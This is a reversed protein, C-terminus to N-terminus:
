CAAQARRRARIPQGPLLFDSSMTMSIPMIVSFQSAKSELGDIKPRIMLIKLLIKLRVNNKRSQAIRKNIESDRQNTFCCSTIESAASITIKEGQMRIQHATNRLTSRLSARTPAIMENLKKQM